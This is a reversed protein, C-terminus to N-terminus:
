AACRRPRATASACRPSPSCPCRALSPVTRMRHREPDGNDGDADAATTKPTERSCSASVQSLARVVIMVASKWWRSGAPPSACWCRRSTSLQRSPETSAKTEVTSVVAPADRARSRARACPSARRASCGCRSPRARGPAAADAVRRPERAATARALASLGLPAAREGRLSLAPREVGFWSRPRWSSRGRSRSSAGCSTPTSTTRSRRSTGSASCARPRDPPLPLHRLLDPRARAAARTELPRPGTLGAALACFAIAAYLYHRM